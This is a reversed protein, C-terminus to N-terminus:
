QGKRRLLERAIQQIERDGSQLFDMLRESPVYEKISSLALIAAKLQERNGSYVYPEIAEPASFSGAQSISIWTAYLTQTTLRPEPNTLFWILREEPIPHGKLSLIDLSWSRVANSRSYLLAVLRTAEGPSFERRAIEARIPKLWSVVRREIRPDPQQMYARLRKDEAPTLPQAPETTFLDQVWRGEAERDIAAVGPPTRPADRGPQEGSGNFVLWAAVGVVLVGLVSGAAVIRRRARAASTALQAIRLIDARPDDSEAIMQAARLYQRSDRKM